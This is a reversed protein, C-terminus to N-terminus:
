ILADNAMQAQFRVMSTNVTMPGFIMALSRNAFKWTLFFSHGLPQLASLCKKTHYWSCSLLPCRNRLLLIRYSDSLEIPKCTRQRSLPKHRLEECNVLIRFTMPEVSSSKLSLPPLWSFSKIKFESYLKSASMKPLIVLSVLRVTSISSGPNAYIGINVVLWLSRGTPM